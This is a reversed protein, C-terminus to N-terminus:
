EVQSIVAPRAARAVRLRRIGAAMPEVLIREWCCHEYLQVGAASSYEVPFISMNDNEAPLGEPLIEEITLRWGDDERTFVPVGTETNFSRTLDSRYEAKFSIAYPQIQGDVKVSWGDMTGARYFTVYVPLALVGAKGNFTCKEVRCEGGLAQLVRSVQFAADECAAGGSALPAYMWVVLVTADTQLQQVCVSAMPGDLCPIKGAPYGRGARIGADTLAAIVREIWEHGM